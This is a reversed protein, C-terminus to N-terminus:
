DLIQSNMKVKWSQFVLLNRKVGLPLSVPVKVVAQRVAKKKKEM